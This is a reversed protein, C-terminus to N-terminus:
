YFDNATTCTLIKSSKGKTVSTKKATLTSSIMGAPSREPSRGRAPNEESADGIIVNSSVNISDTQDLIVSTVDLTSYTLKTIVHEIETDRFFSWFDYLVRFRMMFSGSDCSIYEYPVRFREM